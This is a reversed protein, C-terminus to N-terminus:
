RGQLWCCRAALIYQWHYHKNKVNKVPSLVSTNTYLYQTWALTLMFSVERHAVRETNDDLMYASTAGWTNTTPDTGGKTRLHCAGTSADGNEVQMTHSPAAHIIAWFTMILMNLPKNDQNLTPNWLAREVERGKESAPHHNHCKRHRRTITQPTASCSVWAQDATMPGSSM